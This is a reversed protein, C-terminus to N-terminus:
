KIKRYEGEVLKKGTEIYRFVKRMVADLDEEPQSEDDSFPDPGPFMIDAIENPTKGSKKLFIAKYYLPLNAWKWNRTKKILERYKAVWAMVQEKIENDPYDLDILLNLRGEGALCPMNEVNYVARDTLGLHQLLLYKSADEADFNKLEIKQLKEVVGKHLEEFSLNPNLWATNGWRTAQPLIIPERQNELGPYEKRYEDNLRLFEWRWKAAEWERNTIELRPFKLYLELEKSM